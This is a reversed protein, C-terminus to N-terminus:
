SPERLKKSIQKMKYDLYVFCRRGKGEEKMSEMVQQIRDQQVKARICHGMYLEFKFSADRLVIGVSPNNTVVKESIDKILKGHCLCLECTSMKEIAHSTPPCVGRLLAHIMDHFGDESEMRLHNRYNYKLFGGVADLRKMTESYGWDPECDKRIIEKLVKINENVLADQYYDICSRAESQGKTLYATIKRFVTRVVRRVNSGVGLENTYRRWLGDATSKRIVAPFPHVEGGYM